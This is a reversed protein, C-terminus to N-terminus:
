LDAGPGRNEKDSDEESGAERGTDGAYTSDGRSARGRSPGPMSDRRARDDSASLNGLVQQARTRLDAAMVSAMECLVEAGAVDPSYAANREM